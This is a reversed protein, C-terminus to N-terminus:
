KTNSSDPLKQLELITNLTFTDDTRIYIERKKTLLFKGDEKSHTDYNKITYVKNPTLVTTDLDNKNVSIRSASLEVQHKLQKLLNTNDNPM